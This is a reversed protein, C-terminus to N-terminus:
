PTNIQTTRQLDDYCEDNKTTQFFFLSDYGKWWVTTCFECIINNICPMGHLTRLNVQAFMSKDLWKISACVCVCVGVCFVIMLCFALDNDEVCKDWQVCVCVCLYFIMRNVFLHYWAVASSFWKWFSQLQIKQCNWKRGRGHKNLYFGNLAVMCLSYNDMQVIEKEYEIQWRNIYTIM